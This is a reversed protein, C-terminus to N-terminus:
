AAGRQKVIYDVVDALDAAWRKREWWHWRRYQQNAHIADSVLDINGDAIVVLKDATPNHCSIYIGTM